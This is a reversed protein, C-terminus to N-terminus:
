LSIISLLFYAATASNAYAVSKSISCQSLFSGIHINALETFTKNLYRRALNFQTKLLPLLFHQVSFLNNTQFANRLKYIHLSQIGVVQTMHYPLSMTWVVVDIYIAITVYLLLFIRQQCCRTPELGVLPMIQGRLRIPMPVLSLIQSSLRIPELGM